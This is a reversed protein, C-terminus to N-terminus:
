GQAIQNAYEIEIGLSKAKAEVEEETMWSSSEYSLLSGPCCGGRFRGDTILTKQTLKPLCSFDKLPQVAEAKTYIAYAVCFEGQAPDPLVQIRNPFFAKLAFSGPLRLGPFDIWDTTEFTGYLYGADYPPPYTQIQLTDGNEGAFGFEKGESYWDVKSVFSSDNLKWKAPLPLNSPISRTSSHNDLLFAPSVIRDDKLSAFYDSSCYALWLPYILDLDLGVPFGGHRVWGHTTISDPNLGGHAQRIQDEDLQRLEYLMVGDCGMEAYEIADDNLSTTRIKWQQGKRAVVFQKTSVIQKEGQIRGSRNSSSYVIEGDVQFEPEQGNTQNSNHM